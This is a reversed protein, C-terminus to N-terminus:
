SGGFDVKGIGSEIKVAKRKGDVDYTAAEKDANPLAMWFQTNLGNKKSYSGFWDALRGMHCTKDLWIPMDGVIEYSYHGPGYSFYCSREDETVNEPPPCIPKNSAGDDHAKTSDVLKIAKILAAHTKTDLTYEVTKGTSENYTSQKRPISFAYQYRVM